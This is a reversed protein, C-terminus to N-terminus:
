GAARRRRRRLWALGALLLAGCEPPGSVFVFTGKKNGVVVDKWGDGDLDGAVVQTGVGSNDDILHPVFDVSGPSRVTEFWYLVAAGNADPDAGSHAWHRKGTVIDAIGDNDM